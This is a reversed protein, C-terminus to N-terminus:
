VRHEEEPTSKRGFYAGIVIAALTMYQDANIIRLFLAGHIGVGFFVALISRTSKLFDFLKGM